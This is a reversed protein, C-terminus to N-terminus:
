SIYLNLLSRHLKSFKPQLEEFFLLFDEVLGKAKNIDNEVFLIYFFEKLKELQISKLQDFEKTYIEAKPNIKKCELFFSYLWDFEFDLKRVRSLMYERIFDFLKQVKPDAFHYISKDDLYTEGAISLNDSIIRKYMVTYKYIRMYSYVYMFLNDMQVNVLFYYNQKITELTSYPNFNIFGIQPAIGHKKLLRLITYNEEVTTLKNYLKLDATNGSEIGVFITKFGTDSMKKLLANDKPTDHLSNAKIYCKFVLNYGLKQIADCLKYMRIKAIDNNPDLINDDTFFFKQIGFRQYVIDIEKIIHSIDKYEIIGKRETCFTCKGTCINNKTQLCYEKRRNRSLSDTEFYDLAPYYDIVKNCYPHKNDYNNPYVLNSNYIFKEDFLIHNLLNELPKEGDGLIIYDVTHCIDFIERYYRTPYGGGFAVTAGKTKKKIYESLKACSKFNSSNVSFGYFDYDLGLSEIVEDVCLNKHHYLIDVLFRNKRLYGALQDVGVNSYRWLNNISILLIKYQRKIEEQKSM